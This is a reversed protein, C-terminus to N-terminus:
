ILNVADLLKDMPFHTYVQETVGSGSHGVIAKIIRADVEAITMLSIFTHRTDHPKHEFGFQQLIPNWYADKYNRYLFKRGTTKMTMLYENGQDYLEKFFPYVKDAIPVSRIGSETKSAVVDFYHDDIHVDERKLDLLESIRVGTYIMMLIVKVQANNSQKWLAKIEKETFITRTYKNPNDKNSLDVFKVIERRDAPIKEYKVGYDYMMGWMVKMKKLTPKNKDSADIIAQLQTLKIDVVKKDHLESCAKFAANYGKHGSDSIKPYHETKWEEFLKAFTMDQALSYPNKNYEALAIEADNKKEYYGIYKFIQKGNDDWGVTLRVAYPKRRKGSLKLVSGYGNSKRM